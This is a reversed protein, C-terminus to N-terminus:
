DGRPLIMTERQEFYDVEQLTDRPDRNTLEPEFEVFADSSASETEVAVEEPKDDTGADSPVSDPDPIPGRSVLKELEEESTDVAHLHTGASAVAFRVLMGNLRPAKTGQRLEALCHQAYRLREERHFRSFDRSSSGVDELIESVRKKREDGTVKDPITAAESLFHRLQAMQIMMNGDGGEFSEHLGKLTHAVEFLLRQRHTRPFSLSQTGIM